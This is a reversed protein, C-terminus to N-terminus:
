RTCFAPYETIEGRLYRALLRAQVEIVRRYSITYGFIPHTIATDLRREYTRLIRKRARPIVSVAGARRVFDEASIEDNNIMTLVVSDAILPRFEEMLDLALAPKSYRPAHYFGMYPNFGVALLAVTFDKVMLAYVYSLLANVPDRPPRRNRASFYFNFDYNRKKLMDNFHMFYIRAANGEIGLLEDLSTANLSQEAAKDLERLAVDIESESNRRLLTRCNRIKGNVFNKALRIVDPKSAFEFQKRRLEVNKHSMGHTIAYFWGGYSFYCIPIGRDCLEHIAPTTIQVNGFISLQSVSLLRTRTLSGDVCKIVLEENRKTVVAGHEQVYVPLANDLRPVIQRNKEEPHGLLTNIEDPLCIGVLSCRPCKPSDILPPPIKSQEATDRAKKAFDLTRQVLADDFKVDVRTKSGAYYIIGSNCEYGNERLIVGQACVQVCDALWAGNSIDPKNGRKYEVPTAKKGEGEVLDINAILGCKEGSVTVSRAHFLENQVENSSPMEGTANDVKEHKFSGDITDASEEFESDVFELYFLRPCYVFENLMRAPLLKNGFKTNDQSKPLM